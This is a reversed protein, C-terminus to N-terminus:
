GIATAEVDLKPFLCDVPLADRLTDPEVQEVILRERERMHQLEGPLRALIDLARDSFGLPLEASLQM